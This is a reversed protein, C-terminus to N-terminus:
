LEQSGGNQFSSVISLLFLVSIAWFVGFMGINASNSISPIDFEVNLWNAFITRILFLHATVMSLTHAILRIRAKKFHRLMMCGAVLELGSVVCVGGIFLPIVEAEFLM